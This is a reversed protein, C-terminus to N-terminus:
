YPTPLPFSPAVGPHIREVMVDMISVAGLVASVLSKLGEYARVLETAPHAPQARWQEEVPALAFTTETLFSHAQKRVGELHGLCRSLVPENSAAISLLTSTTVTVASLHKALHRSLGTFENLQATEASTM